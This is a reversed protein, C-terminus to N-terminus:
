DAAVPPDDHVEAGLAHEAARAVRRTLALDRDVSFRRGPLLAAQPLIGARRHRMARLFPCAGWADVGPRPSPGVSACSASGHAFWLSDKPPTCAAAGSALSRREAM